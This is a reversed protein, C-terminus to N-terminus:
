LPKPFEFTIVKPKFAFWLARVIIILSYNVIESM